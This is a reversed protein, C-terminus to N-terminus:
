IFKLEIDINIHHRQFTSLLCLILLGHYLTLCSITSKRSLCPGRYVYYVHIYPFHSSKQRRYVHIASLFNFVRVTIDFAIPWCSCCGLRLIFIASNELNSLSHPNRSHTYFQLYTARISIHWLHGCSKRFWERLM